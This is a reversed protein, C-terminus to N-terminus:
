ELPSIANFFSPVDGARELSERLMIIFRNVIISLRSSETSHCGIRM